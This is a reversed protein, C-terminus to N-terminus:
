QRHRKKNGYRSKVQLKARDVIAKTIDEVSFEEDFAKETDVTACM